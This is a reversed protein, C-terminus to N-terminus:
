SKRCATLLQVASSQVFHSGKRTNKLIMLRHWCSTSLLSRMNGAMLSNLQKCWVSRNAHQKNILTCALLACLSKLTTVSSHFWTTIYGDVSRWSERQSASSVSSYRSLSITSRGRAAPFWDFENYLQSMSILLPAVAFRVFKRTDRPAVVRLQLSRPNSWDHTHTHTHSRRTPASTM